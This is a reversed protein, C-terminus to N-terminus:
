FNTHIEIAKMGEKINTKKDIRSDCNNEDESMFVQSCYYVPTWLLVSVAHAKSM